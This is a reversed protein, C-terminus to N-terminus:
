QLVLATLQLVTKVTCNYGFQFVMLFKACTRGADTDSNEKAVETISFLPEVAYSQQQCLQSLHLFAVIESCNESSSRYHLSFFCADYELSYKM